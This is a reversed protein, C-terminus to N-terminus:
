PVRRHAPRQDLAREGRDPHQEHTVRSADRERRYERGEGHRRAEAGVEQRRERGHEIRQGRNRQQRESQQPEPEADRAEDEDNDVGDQPRHREVGM